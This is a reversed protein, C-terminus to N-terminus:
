RNGLAWRAPSARRCDGPDRHVRPLGELLQRLGTAASSDCIPNSAFSALTEACHDVARIGTSLWLWQPTHLAIRPDLIVTAAALLPHVYPHKEKSVDDMAGAIATFEAAALTVPVNVIRIRPANMPPFDFGHTAGIRMRIREFDRPSRIDNELCLSVLKTLDIITRLVWRSVRLSSSLVASRPTHPPVGSFTGAHRRGLAAEIKAIEDTHRRLHDSVLLCVRQANRRQVEAAVAEAAPRGFVVRELTSYSFEGSMLSM